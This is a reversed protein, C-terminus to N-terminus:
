WSTGCPPRRATARKRTRGGALEIIGYIAMSVFWSSLLIVLPVWLFVQPNLFQLRFASRVRGRPAPTGSYITPLSATTM